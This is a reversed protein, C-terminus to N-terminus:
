NNTPIYTPHARYTELRSHSIRLGSELELQENYTAYILDKNIGEDNHKPTLNGHIIRGSAQPM